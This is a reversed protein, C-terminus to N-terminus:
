NIFLLKTVHTEEGLEDNCFVLYVGTEV